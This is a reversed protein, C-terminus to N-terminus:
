KGINLDLKLADILKRIKDQPIIKGEDILDKLFDISLSTHTLNPNEKILERIIEINIEIPNLHSAFNIILEFLDHNLNTLYKVSDYKPNYITQRKEKIEVTKDTEKLDEVNKQPTEIISSLELDGTEENLVGIYGLSNIISKKVRVVHKKDVNYELILIKDLIELNLRRDRFKEVIEKFEPINIFAKFLLKNGIETTYANAIKKGLDTLLVNDNEDYKILGFKILSSLKGRFSGGSATMQISEAFLEKSASEGLNNFLGEILGKAQELDLGDVPYDVKKPM